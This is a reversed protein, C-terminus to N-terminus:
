EHIVDGESFLVESINSVKVGIQRLTKGEYKMYFDKKEKKMNNHVFLKRDINYTSDM